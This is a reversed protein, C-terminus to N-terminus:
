TTRILEELPPPPIAHDDGVFHPCAQGVSPRIEGDEESLM